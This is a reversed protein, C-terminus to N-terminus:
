LCTTRTPGAVFCGETIEGSNRVEFLYYANSGNIRVRNDAPSQVDATGLLTYYSVDLSTVTVGTPPTYTDRIAGDSVSFKGAGCLLRMQLSSGSTEVKYGQLTCGAQDANDRVRARTRASELFQHVSSVTTQVVQKDNFRIFAALAAGFVVLIISVTVIMEILTFGRQQTPLKM